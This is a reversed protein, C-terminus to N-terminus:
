YSIHPYNPNYIHAFIHMCAEIMFNIQNFILGSCIKIIGTLVFLFSHFFHTCMGLITLLFMFFALYYKWYSPNHKEFAFESYDFAEMMKPNHIASNSM